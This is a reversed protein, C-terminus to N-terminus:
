PPAVISMAAQAEFRSAVKVTRKNIPVSSSEVVKV